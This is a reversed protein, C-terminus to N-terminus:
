PRDRRHHDQTYGQQGGAARGDAARGIRGGLVLFPDCQAPIHLFIRDFQVDAVRRKIERKRLDKSQLPLLIGAARVRIGILSLLVPETLRVDVRIVSGHFLQLLVLSLYRFILHFLILILMLLLYLCQM